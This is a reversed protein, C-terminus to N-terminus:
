ILGLRRAKESGDLQFYLRLVKAAQDPTYTGNAVQPWERIREIDAVRPFRPQIRAVFTSIGLAALVAIRHQGATVIFRYRRGDRLFYGRIYGDPYRDPRYGEKRIKHFLARCRADQQRILKPTFPGFHQRANAPKITQELWPLPPWDPLGALGGPLRAKPLGTLAEWLSDPKFRHYYRALVSKKPSIDPDTEYQRLFAVFYHWGPPTYAYGLFDRCVSLRVRVLPSAADIARRGGPVALPVM